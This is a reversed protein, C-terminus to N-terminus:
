GYPRPDIQYGKIKYGLIRPTTGLARAASAINGRTSKLADRILDREYAGVLSKLNGTVAAGGAADATQLTPPLHYPHIVNGEAVLVSREICNELERVNGPWHYAMLMDIVGSSLRRVDKGNEQAYKQLFFDALLVIDAKRKRLPPVYIPFVHLRYYLDERFKGQQVLAQLDKNTAAIVRVDVKITKTGGVREFEREQLVRLLKVQIAPSTESVEDLFVTGGSAVRFLGEKDRVAGTFSGRVHGFLETELLTEPLAACNICVFPGQGRQSLRHLERALLEKGTGSEGSLLVTSDSPAIQRIMAMVQAFRPSAGVIGGGAGGPEEPAAAGGLEIRAFRIYDDATRVIADLHRKCQQALSQAARADVKGDLIPLLAQDISGAEPRIQALLAATLERMSELQEMELQRSEQQKVESLDQFIAILGHISGGEGAIPTASIGVPIEAGDGRAIVIERRVARRGEAALERALIDGLPSLGGAFVEAAAADQLRGAELGLIQAGAANCYRVQGAGNLTLLGSGMKELIDGTSLRFDELARSAQELQRGKLRVREALFGSLAAVLYFCIAYVYGNLYFDANFSSPLGSLAPLGHSHRLASLDLLLLAAYALSAGTAAVIAGRAFRVYAAALIALFFLLAFPNNETGGTLRVFAAVWAIDALIQGYVTGAVGRRGAALLAAAAGLYGVAAAALAPWSLPLAGLAHLGLASGTMVLLLLTRSWFAQRDTQASAPM